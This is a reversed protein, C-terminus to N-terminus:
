RERTPELNQPMGIKTIEAFETNGKRGGIFNTGPDYEIDTAIFIAENCNNMEITAFDINTMNQRM